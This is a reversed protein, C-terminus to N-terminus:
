VVAFELLSPVYYINRYFTDSRCRLFCGTLIDWNSLVHKAELLFFVNLARKPVVQMHYIHVASILVGEWLLVNKQKARYNHKAIAKTSTFSFPLKGWQILGPIIFLLLLM